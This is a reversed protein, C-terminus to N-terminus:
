ELLVNYKTVQKPLVLYGLNGINSTLRNMLPDILFVLKMLLYHFCNNAARTDQNQINHYKQQKTQRTKNFVPKCFFNKM